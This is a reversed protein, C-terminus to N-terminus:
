ARNIVRMQIPTEPEVKVMVGSSDKAYIYRESIPIRVGVQQRSFCEEIHEPDYDVAIYKRGDCEYGLLVQNGIYLISEYINNYASAAQLTDLRM